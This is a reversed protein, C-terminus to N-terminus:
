WCIFSFVFIKFASLFILFVIFIKVFGESIEGKFTDNIAAGRRISIGPKASLKLSMSFLTMIELELRIEKGGGELYFFEKAVV